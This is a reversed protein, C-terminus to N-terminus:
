GGSKRRAERFAGIYGALNREAIAERLERM